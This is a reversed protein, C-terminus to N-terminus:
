FNDNTEGGILKITSNEENVFDSPKNNGIASIDIFCVGDSRAIHEDDIYARQCWVSNDTSYTLLFAKDYGDREEDELNINMIFTDPQSLLLKMVEKVSEYKAIYTVENGFNHEKIMKKLIKKAKM